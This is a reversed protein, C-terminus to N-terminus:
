ANQLRNLMIKGVAEDKATEITSRFESETATKLVTCLALRNGVSNFSEVESFPEASVAVYKFSSKPHKMSSLLSAYAAREAADKLCEWAENVFKMSADTNKDPHVEM